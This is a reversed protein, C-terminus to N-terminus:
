DRAPSATSGETAATGQGAAFILTLDRPGGTEGFRKALANILAEPVGIGVFGGIALTDGDVILRAAAEPPIIKTRRAGTLARLEDAHPEVLRGQRGPHRDQGSM